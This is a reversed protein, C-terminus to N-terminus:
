DYYNKEFINFKKFVNDNKLIVRKYQNMRTDKFLISLLKM